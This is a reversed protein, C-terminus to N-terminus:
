FGLKKMKHYYSLDNSHNTRYKRDLREAEKAIKYARRAWAATSAGYDQGVSVDNYFFTAYKLKTVQLPEKSKVKLFSKWEENKTLTVIYSDPIANMIAHIGRGINIEITKDEDNYTGDVKKFRFENKYDKYEVRLFPSESLISTEIKSASKIGSKGRSGM